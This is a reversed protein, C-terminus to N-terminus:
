VSGKRRACSLKLFLSIFKKKEYASDKPSNFCKERNKKESSTFEKGLKEGRM